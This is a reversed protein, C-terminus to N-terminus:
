QEAVTKCFRQMQANAEAIRQQRGAETLLVYEGNENKYRLHGGVNLKALNNRAAKCNETSIRAAEAEYQSLAPIM